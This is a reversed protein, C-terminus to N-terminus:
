QGAAPRAGAVSFRVERKTTAGAGLRSTAEVKLV